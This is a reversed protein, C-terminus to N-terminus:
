RRAAEAVRQKAHEFADKDSADSWGLRKLTRSKGNIVVREMAESWFEPVIM